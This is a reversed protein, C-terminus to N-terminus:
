VSSQAAAGSMLQEYPACAPCAYVDSSNTGFVRAFRMTVLSGCNNCTRMAQEQPVMVRTREDAGSADLRCGVGGPSRGVM